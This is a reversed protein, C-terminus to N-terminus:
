EVILLLDSSRVWGEWGDQRIKQWGRVTYPLLAIGCSRPALRTLLRSREAPWARLAVDRPRALPHVCNTPASVAAIYRRHVWGAYHGDEVPCWNGACAETVMIGCRAYPLATLVRYRTGPGTRLNLPDDARVNVVCHEAGTRVPDALAGGPLCLALLLATIRLAHSM